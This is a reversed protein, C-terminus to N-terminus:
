TITRYFSLMTILAFLPLCIESQISILTVSFSPIIAKEASGSNCSSRRREIARPCLALLVVICILTCVPVWISEGRCKIASPFVISWIGKSIVNPCARTISILSGTETFASSSAFCLILRPSRMNSFVRLEGLNQCASAM